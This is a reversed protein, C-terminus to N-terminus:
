TGGSERQDDLDLRDFTSSASQERSYLSLSLSLSLSSCLRDFTSLDAKRNEFLSYFFEDKCPSLGLISTPWYYFYFSSFSFLTSFTCHDIMPITEREREREDVLSLLEGEVGSISLAM